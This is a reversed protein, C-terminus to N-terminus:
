VKVVSEVYLAQKRYYEDNCLPSSGKNIYDAMRSFDTFQELYERPNLKEQLTEVFNIYETFDTFYETEHEQVSVVDYSPDISYEGDIDLIMHIVSSIVETTANRTVVVVAKAKAESRPNKARISDLLDTINTISQNQIGNQKQYHHM